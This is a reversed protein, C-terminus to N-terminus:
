SLDQCLVNQTYLAQDGLHMEPVLHSALSHRNEMV